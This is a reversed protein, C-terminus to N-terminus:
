LRWYQIGLRQAEQLDFTGKVDILVHCDDRCLAHIASLGLDRYAKHAVAVIVADVNRIEELRVLTIGYLRHAEEASALPDHILTEVGYDKLERVIDIVKSNRLDTINEKFTLGLIAVRSDLVQKGAGILQKITQEAIYKGMGDNIRRGALIIEPHYGISEAKYTLYYPDVGICHGGVLGPRFPLFNWKTAAAERVEMPDIGMRNFIISLENMLAINLDRQTNEIVKAAEAVRISSTQHIGAEVIRGYILTLLELTHPDSASVVKTIKDLTHEKDGPNIREPSYGVTFGHGLKMGSEKELIPVCIDETVGPYVTSEFVVCSGRNLKRGVTEAANRVAMLDPIRSHDIPTPVAIIILRCTSLAGADSTFDLSVSKMDEKSLELTSDYGERLEAIRTTKIDYGVVTFHKALHVALPLGVYGLGVVAIKETRNIFSSFAPITNM